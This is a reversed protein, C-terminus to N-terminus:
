RAVEVLRLQAGLEGPREPDFPSLWVLAHSLQPVNRALHDALERRSSRLDDLLDCPVTAPAVVCRLDRGVLRPLAFLVHIEAFKSLVPTCAGGLVPEAVAFQLREEPAGM